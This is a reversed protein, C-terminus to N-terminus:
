SKAELLPQRHAIPKDATGAIRAGEPPSAGSNELLEPSAVAAEAAPKSGCEGASWDLQTPHPPPADDDDDETLDTNRVAAAVAAQFKPTEQSAAEAFSSRAGGDDEASKAGGRTAQIGGEEEDVYDDTDVPSNTNSGNNSM